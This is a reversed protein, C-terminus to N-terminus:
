ITEHIFRAYPGFVMKFWRFKQNLHKSWKLLASMGHLQLRVIIMFWHLGSQFVWVRVCMCACVNIGNKGEICNEITKTIVSKWSHSFLFLFLFILQLTLLNFCNQIKTVVLRIDVIIVYPMFESYKILVSYFAFIWSLRRVYYSM